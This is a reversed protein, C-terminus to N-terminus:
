PFLELLKDPFHVLNATDIVHECPTGALDTQYNQIWQGDM